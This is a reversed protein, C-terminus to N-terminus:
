KKKKKSPSFSFRVKDENYEDGVLYLFEALGEALNDFTRVDDVTKYKYTGSKSVKYEQKGNKITLKFSM